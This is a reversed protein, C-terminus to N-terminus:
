STTNRSSNGRESSLRAPREGVLSLRHNGRTRRPQQTQTRRHRDVTDAGLRQSRGMTARHATADHRHRGAPTIGAYGGDRRRGGPVRLRSRFLASVVHRGLDAHDSSETDLSLRFLRRAVRGVPIPRYGQPACRCPARLRQRLGLGCQARLRCPDREGTRVVPQQSRDPVIETTDITTRNNGDAFWRSSFDWGSEAAARLDRYVSQAPRGSQRAVEVDERYSEDRPIDKDDWYRNLISGDPMAVTRRDARGPQLEKAGQMWFEYERKMQPLYRAYAAAPDDKALLGVM